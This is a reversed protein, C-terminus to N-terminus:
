IDVDIMEGRNGVVVVVWVECLLELALHVGGVVRLSYLLIVVYVCNSNKPM